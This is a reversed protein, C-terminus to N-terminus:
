CRLCDCCMSSFIQGAVILQIAHCHWEAPPGVYFLMRELLQRCFRVSCQPGLSKCIQNCCETEETIADLICLDKTQTRQVSQAAQADANGNKHSNAMGIDAAYACLVTHHEILSYLHSSMVAAGAVTFSSSLDYISSDGSKQVKIYGTGSSSATWSFSGDNYKSSYIVACSSSSTTSCWYLDVYSGIGASTWSITCPQGVACNSPSTVTIGPFLHLLLDGLVALGEHVGWFAAAIYLSGKTENSTNPPRRVAIESKTVVPM